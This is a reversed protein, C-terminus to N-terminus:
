HKGKCFVMTVLNVLVLLTIERKMIIEKTVAADCLPLM